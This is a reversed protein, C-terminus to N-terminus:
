APIKGNEDGVFQFSNRFERFDKKLQESYGELHVPDDQIRQAIKAWKSIRKKTLAKRVVKSVFIDMDPLQRVQNAIDDPFNITIEM